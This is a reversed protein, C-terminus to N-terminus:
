AQSTVNHSFLRTKQLAKDARQLVEYSSSDSRKKESICASITLKLPKRKHSYQFQASAVSRRIDELRQFGEKKDADRFVIIFEDPNYRYINEEKEFTLIQKCILKTLTNRIRKGFNNGLKDYDDIIIIGISYKLPFKKTDIIYSNRSNLETIPDKYTESYIKQTFASILCLVSALSFVSLGSATDSYYVSLFICLFAFFLNFDMISGSRVANIFTATILITFGIASIINVSSTMFQLNIGLAIQNKGLLEAISFQILIGLLFSINSKSLFNKPHIFYFFLLNFPVLSCLSIYFPSSTYESGYIHKFLNILTYNLIVILFLFVTTGRNFYLLAIFSGFSLLYIFTHTSLCFNESFPNYGYFILLSFAFILSPVLMNKGSSIIKTFQRLIFM